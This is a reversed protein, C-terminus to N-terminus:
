TLGANGVGKSGRLHPPKKSGFSERKISSLHVAVDEVEALGRALPYDEGTSEEHEVGDSHHPPVYIQRFDPCLNFTDVSASQHITTADKQGDVLHYISISLGLTTQDPQLSTKFPFYELVRHLSTINIIQSGLSCLVRWGTLYM